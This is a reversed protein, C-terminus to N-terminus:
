LPNEHCTNCRVLSGKPLTVQGRDEVNFTRRETVKGLVTGLGNVGHCTRCQNLTLAGELLDPHANIWRQDGVPHLGHPGNLNLPPGPAAHCARCEMLKGTHGQLQLAAQNDNAVFTGSDPEVPWEAHTSGHCGECFLGAHTDKSVRYLIETGGATQNEAFRRNTAVIPTATATDTTRYARLLRIGDASRIVNPDTLGLNNVADGTHCSGCHPESAWPVRKTLDLGGPFPAAVSLNGTFDDGVQAMGGHCDQCVLGGNFMQGRLCKTVRGPHCNYCTDNLINTVFANVVPHGSANLRRPDTPPPMDGAFLGEAALQSHFTHLARSNSHHTLQERGNANVDPPGLPGVHALDLAPSYHCRQCVVPPSAALNTGHKADHLRVINNDAAWERSVNAPVPATDQSATTVTFATGAGRPSGEQPCISDVGVKCAARGNGGDQSSTHCRYCDAEASVPAVVDLSSLVTGTTGTLNGTKDRAQIRLLPFSNKRGLDDFPAIPVGEAAFWHIASIRYGFPFSVFFPLDNNFRNFQQRVNSGYPASIGPMLEQDAVLQPAGTLPYLKELDPVPLGTDVLLPFLGLINPPYFPNYGDFAISNGTGRPNADWFNTKFIPASVKRLLAPDRPNSAASYVAMVNTDNLIQPTAGRQIVQAHVVNFPPLISAFRHDLDGCHMGLDNAAVLQFDNRTTFPKEKVLKVPLKTRNASTSNVTGKPIVVKVRDRATAPTGASDVVKLFARYTGPQYNVTVSSVAKSTTISLSKPKGGTFTWRYTYPAKGGQVKAVYRVPTPVTAGFAPKTISCRLAKAHAPQVHVAATWLLCGMTLLLTLVSGPKRM